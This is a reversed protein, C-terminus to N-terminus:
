KQPLRKLVEQHVLQLSSANLEPLLTVISTVIAQQTSRSDSSRPVPAAKSQPPPAPSSNMPAIAGGGLASIEAPTLRDALAREQASVETNDFQKLKPCCHITFIRYQEHSACPNDSLWLITLNPLHKLLAVEALDPIDNKRLYLEKLNPCRCIDRLTSVHNVSLALVELNVLQSIMSVDSLESGWLNLNRVQSIDGVKTKQLVLNETLSM